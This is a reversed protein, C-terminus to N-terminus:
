FSKKNIIESYIVARKFQRKSKFFSASQKETKQKIPSTPTIKEEKKEKILDSQKIYQKEEDDLITEKNESVTSSPADAIIVPEAEQPQSLESMIEEWPNKPPTYEQANAESAKRVKKIVSSIIVVAIIGFYILDGVDM